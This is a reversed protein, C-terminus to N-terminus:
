QPPMRVAGDLRITEGNLMPIEVAAAVLQAFEAPKGLRHPFPIQVALSAQPAFRTPHFPWVRERTAPRRHRITSRSEETQSTVPKRWPVM